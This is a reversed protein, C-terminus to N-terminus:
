ESHSRGSLTGPGFYITEWILITDSIRQVQTQQGCFPYCRFSHSLVVMDGEDHYCAFNM